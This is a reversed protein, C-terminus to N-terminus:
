HVYFINYWTKGKELSVSRVTASSWGLCKEETLLLFDISATAIALLGLDPGSLHQCAHVVFGDSNTFTLNSPAGCACFSTESKTNYEITVCGTTSPVSLTSRGRALQRRDISFNLVHNTPLIHELKEKEDRVASTTYTRDEVGKILRTNM